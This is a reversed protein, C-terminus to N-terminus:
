CVSASSESRVSLSKTLKGALFFVCGIGFEDCFVNLKSGIQSWENLKEFATGVRAVDGHFAQELFPIADERMLSGVRAGTGTPRILKILDYFMIMTFCWRAPDMGTRRELDAAYQYYLRFADGMTDEADMENTLIQGDTLFATPEVDEDNLLEQIAPALGLSTLNVLCQM